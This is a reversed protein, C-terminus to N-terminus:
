SNILVVVSSIFGIICLPTILYREKKSKTVFGNYIISYALYLTYVILVINMFTINFIPAIKGTRQLYLLGVIVQLASFFGSAFRMKVPLVRYKGGNAYEGFPAGLTLSFQIIAFGFVIFIIIFTTINLLM